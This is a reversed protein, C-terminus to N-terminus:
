LDVQITNAQQASRAHAEMQERTGMTVNVTMSQSVAVQLSLTQHVILAIPQVSDKNTSAVYASHVHAPARSDQAAFASVSTPPVLRWRTQAWRASRARQRARSRSSGAPRAHNVCALAHQTAPVVVRGPLTSMTLALAHAIGQCAPVTQSTTALAQLPPILLARCASLIDKLHRRYIREKDRTSGKPVSPARVALPALIVLTARATQRRTAGGWCPTLLQPARSAPQLQSGTTTLAQVVHPALQLAM